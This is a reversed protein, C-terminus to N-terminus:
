AVDNSRTKVLMKPVVHNSYFAFLLPVNDLLQYRGVSSGSRAIIGPVTAAMYCDKALSSIKRYAYHIWRDLLFGRCRKEEEVQDMVRKWEHESGSDEREYPRGGNCFLLKLSLQSLARAFWGAVLDDSFGEGVGLYVTESELDAFVTWRNGKGTLGNLDTFRQKMKQINTSESDVLVKVESEVSLHKLMLATFDDRDYIREYFWRVRDFRDGHVVRTKGLMAEICKRREESSNASTGDGLGAVGGTACEGAWPQVAEHSPLLPYRGRTQDKAETVSSSMQAFLSKMEQRLTDVCTKLSAIESDSRSAESSAAHLLCASPASPSVRLRQVM